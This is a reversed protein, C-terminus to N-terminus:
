LVASYFPNVLNVLRVLEQVVNVSAQRAGEIIGDM